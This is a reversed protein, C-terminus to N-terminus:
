SEHVIVTVKKNEINPRLSGFIWRVVEKPYYLSPSDISFKKWLAIKWWIDIKVEKDSNVAAQIYVKM